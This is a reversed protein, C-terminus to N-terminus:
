AWKQEEEGLFMGCQGRSRRALCYWADPLYHRRSQERTGVCLRFAQVICPSVCLHEAHQNTGFLCYLFFFSTRSIVSLRIRRRKFQLCVHVQTDLKVSAFKNKQIHKWKCKKITNVLFLFQVFSLPLSLNCMIVNPMIRLQPTPSRITAALRTMEQHSDSECLSPRSMGFIVMRAFYASWPPHTEPKLHSHTRPYLSHSSGPTLLDM